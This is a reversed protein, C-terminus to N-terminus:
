LVTVPVNFLSLYLLNCDRTSPAGVVVVVQIFSGLKMQVNVTRMCAKTPTWQTAM